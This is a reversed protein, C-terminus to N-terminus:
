QDKAHKISGILRTVFGCAAEKIYEETDANASPFHQRSRLSNNAHEELLSLKHKFKRPDEDFVLEGLVLRLLEATAIQMALDNARTVQEDSM